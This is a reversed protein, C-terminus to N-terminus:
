QKHQNTRSWAEWLDALEQAKEPQQKADLRIFKPAGPGDFKRVPPPQRKAGQAPLAFFTALVFIPLLAFPHKM